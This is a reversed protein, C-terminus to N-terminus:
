KRLAPKGCLVTASAPLAQLQLMMRMSDSIMLGWRFAATDPEDEMDALTRLFEAAPIEAGGRDLISADRFAVMAPLDQWVSTAMNTRLLIDHPWIEFQIRWGKFFSIPIFKNLEADVKITESGGLRLVFDDLVRGNLRAQAHLEGTLKSSPMARALAYESM